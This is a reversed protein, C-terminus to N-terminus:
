ALKLYESVTQTYVAAAIVAARIDPLFYPSHLPETCGAGIHCFSGSCEDIFCGFDETTMTPNEIREVRDKGLVKCASEELLATEKDTNVIGGYSPRIEIDSTVRYKASIEKVSSSILNRMELRDEKGLTRVIGNLEAEDAIVNCAIGGNIRGISLVAKDGSSPQLNTLSVAMESAALLADAGKEPTAGHCSRGHVRITIVDSAAYFKGYRVGVSGIPIDPSVHGGFVASVDKLAGADIMRQAGGSGEEDPQFLFVVDGDIDEKSMSLLIAAGLAATMHIDHGCAHMTESNESKFDCDTKEEVPLADMDARLAVKRGTNQGKGHLTAVLGTGLIRKVDLGLDRLKEELYDSTLYEKNGMEPHRHLYERIITLEQTIEEAKALYDM